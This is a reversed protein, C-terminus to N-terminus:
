NSQHMLCCTFSVIGKDAKVKSSFLLVFLIFYLICRVLKIAYIKCYDDILDPADLIREPVPSIHRSNKKTSTSPTKNNSYLVRLDNLHGLFILM